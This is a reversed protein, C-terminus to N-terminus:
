QGEPKPAPVRRLGFQSIKSDPAIGLRMRVMGKECRIDYVYIEDDGLQRHERLTFALIPGADALIQAYRKPGEPFFGARLYAFDDNSLRGAATDQLIQRARAQVAPIDPLPGPAAPQLRPDLLAAIGDVIEGPDAEALNALVIVTLGNEPYRAIDTRFGQWAGGHRQVPRKGVEDISWGFGYPYTRGSKLVVPTFVQQWTAPELVRRERLGRDWAILDLLSLYLSGDATTNLSPSVWEQNRLEGKELRYGAARNPVIADESIVRATPMGLPAFVRERLLDGYFKGSVKRIVAGLVVYGTNSYNWRTGPPFEPTLAYAFKLLDDETYDRRYDLTGTTYDPLGSTHTLLHRITISKWGAPAQPFFKMVPDTLAIRGDEVLLMVAASTFQKGVSGSQFITEPTVPVKHEVNAEGYGRAKIVEGNLVIAVALGPIKQRAMAARIYDDVRELEEFARPSTTADGLTALICTVVILSLRRNRPM